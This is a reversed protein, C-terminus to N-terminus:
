ARRSKGCTTATDRWWFPAMLCSWRMTGASFRTTPDFYKTLGDASELNLSEHYIGGNAGFFAFFEPQQLMHEPPYQVLNGNVSQVMVAWFYLKQNPHAVARFQNIDAGANFPLFPGDGSVMSDVWGERLYRQWDVRMNGWNRSGFPGGSLAGQGCGLRVKQGAAHALSAIEAILRDFAERRIGRWADLDFDETLIDVGHRKKYEAVV